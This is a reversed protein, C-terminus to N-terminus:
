GPRLLAADGAAPLARRPGRGRGLHCAQHDRPPANAARAGAGLRPLGARARVQARRRLGARAGPQLAAPRGELPLAPRVSWRGFPGGYTSGLYRPFVAPVSFQYSWHFPSGFAIQHYVLMPVVGLSFGAAAAWSPRLLVLPALMLPASYDVGCLYG